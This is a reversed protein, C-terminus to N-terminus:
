VVSKRDVIVPLDADQKHLQALLEVGNMKPMKLDTVVVDPPREAVSEMAAVGDEALTVDYGDLKLLKRLGERAGEEDDVVLVRIKSGATM